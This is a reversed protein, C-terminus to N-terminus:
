SASRVHSSAEASVEPALSAAPRSQVLAVVRAILEDIEFPKALVDLPGTLYRKVDEDVVGVESGVASLILIPLSVFAPTDRLARLLDWGTPPPMHLDLFVLAPNVHCVRRLAQKSDTCGEVVFRDRLLAQVLELFDPDDDVVLITGAM